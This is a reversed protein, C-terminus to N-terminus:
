HLGLIELANRGMVGDLEHGDLFAEEAAAVNTRM